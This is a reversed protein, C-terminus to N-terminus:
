LKIKKEKIADQCIEELNNFKPGLNQLFDLENKNSHFSLKDLSMTDNNTGESNYNQPHYEPFDQHEKNLKSLRQLLSGDPSSPILIFVM